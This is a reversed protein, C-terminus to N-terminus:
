SGMARLVYKSAINESAILNIKQWQRKNEEKILNDIYGM